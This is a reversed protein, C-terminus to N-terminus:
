RPPDMVGFDISRDDITPQKTNLTVLNRCVPCEAVREDLPDGKRLLFQDMWRPQRLEEIRKREERSRRRREQSALAAQGICHPCSVNVSWRWGTDLDV